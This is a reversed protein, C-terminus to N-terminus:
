WEESKEIVMAFLKRKRGRLFTHSPNHGKSKVSNEHYFLYSFTEFCLLCPKKAVLVLPLKPPPLPTTDKLMM